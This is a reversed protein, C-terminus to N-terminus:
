NPRRPFVGIVAPLAIHELGSGDVLAQWAPPDGSPRVGVVESGILVDSSAGGDMAMAHALDRFGDRLCVALEWLPVEGNSKVVLVLGARNEAVVTQQALKGSRLVRPKGNRDLLMLSQAAELYAPKDTDFSETRLDLVRAKKENASVPEAVFLGQWQPHRKSGLSRGEKYLLGLYSFDEQFMGANFLVSAKTRAQWEQM